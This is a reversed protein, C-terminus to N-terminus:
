KRSSSSTNEGKPAKSAAKPAKSSNHHLNRVTVGKPAKSAAKPAKSSNHHLNRSEGYRKRLNPDRAQTTTVAYLAISAYLANIKM